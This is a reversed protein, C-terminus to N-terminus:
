NFISAYADKLLADKKDKDIRSGKKYTATAQYLIRRGLMDPADQRITSKVEAEKDLEKDKDVSVVLEAAAADDDERFAVPKIIVEKPKRVVVRKPKIRTAEEEKKKFLEIMKEYFPYLADTKEIPFSM